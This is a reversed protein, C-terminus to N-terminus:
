ANRLFKGRTRHSEAESPIVLFLLQVTRNRDQLCQNFPLADTLSLDKTAAVGNEGGGTSDAPSKEASRNHFQAHFRFANLDGGGHFTFPENSFRSHEFVDYGMGPLDAPDREPYRIMSLRVSEVTIQDPRRCKEVVNGLGAAEAGPLVMGLCSLLHQRFHAVRFHAADDALMDSQITIESRGQGVLGFDDIIRVLPHEM